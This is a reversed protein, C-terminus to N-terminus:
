RVGIVPLPIPRAGDGPLVPRAPSGVKVAASAAHSPSWESGYKRLSPAHKLTRVEYHCHCNPCNLAFSDRAFQRHEPTFLLDRLRQEHLNGLRFTVYCQQVTGDAGVWLMQHSDCPVRMAPGLMVWDPISRLGEVSQNFREPDAAKLHLIEGVVLEVAARDEPRFQLVRDPGETFYPLSYHILDVQFRMDYRRAFDFAAHLEEVNCSPRKLLWNLRLNVENGYRERVQAISAEVRAFRNRRQVYADYALGTGYFGVNITRLGAAYLDDIKEGLVVANTTVYVGLGISSAHEVMRPLDPHLLPEGGYFRVDLFGLAKADDLLDRVIPWPLQSGPMFERGYRCGMCRLNCHATIAVELNRPEPRILIPLVKAASHRARELNLDARILRNWLAPHHRLFPGVVNRLRTRLGM